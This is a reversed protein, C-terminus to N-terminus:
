RTGGAMLRSIRVAKAPTMADLIKGAQRTKMAGLLDAALAPPLKELLSAANKPKMSQYFQILTTLDQAAEKEAPKLLDEMERRLKTLEALKAETDKALLELAAQRVELELAEQTAPAQAVPEDAENAALTTLPFTLLLAALELRM